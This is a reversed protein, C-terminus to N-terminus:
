GSPEEGQVARAVAARLWAHADDADDREHWVLHTSFSSLEVPPPLARLPLAKALQEAVRRPATLVLDSRAVILPAALFYPVRLVVRRAHGFRALAEDVFSPGAGRQSILAHRLRVFLELPLADGVEPHDERVLCVFDETFLRRTRLSARDSPSVLIAGDIEGASLLEIARGGSAPRVAVDVGPAERALIELLPPLVTVAASDGMLITFRREARAPDFPAGGALARSLKMLGRRIPASLEEARPTLTMGGPGRVLLPDGLLERLQRLSHSMASQTVGARAAARTVSGEALLAELATLLNLNIAGLAGRAGRAMSRNQCAAGAM